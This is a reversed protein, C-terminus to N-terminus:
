GSPSGEPVLSWIAATVSARLSWALGEAMLDAGSRRGAEGPLDGTTSSAPSDDSSREDGPDGLRVPRVEYLLEPDLGALAFTSPTAEGPEDLQYAFVIARRRDAATFMLAASGSEAMPGGAGGTGADSRWPSVLRHLDGHQVLDRHSLYAEVARRCVARESDSLGATDLDLGFRASMAVACGFEVPREGWRTVHAGLVQPPLYHSAAWQMRVRDVPDTDDSTWVEHFWRLSALDVRGGGSACLMLEVEPWRHAVEAMVQETANALEVWYSGQRDRPIAASGPESVDRNADWKLYSIGPHESLLGDITDLVFARV